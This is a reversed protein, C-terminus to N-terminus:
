IHMLPNFWTVDFDDSMHSMGSLEDMFCWTGDGWVAVLESNNNDM